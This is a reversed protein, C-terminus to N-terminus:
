KWYYTSVLITIACKYGPAKSLLRFCNYNVWYQFRCYIIYHRKRKFCCILKKNQKVRRWSDSKIKSSFNTNKIKIVNSSPCFESSFPAVIAWFIKFNILNHCKPNQLEFIITKLYSLNFNPLKVTSILHSLVIVFWFM